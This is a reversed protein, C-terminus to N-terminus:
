DQLEKRIRHYEEVSLEGAALRRRALELPTSTVDVGSVTAGSKVRTQRALWVAALVLIALLAVVLLLGLLSGLVGLAGGGIGWGRMHGTGFRTVGDCFGNWGMM